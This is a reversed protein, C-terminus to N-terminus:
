PKSGAGPPWYAAIKALMWRGANRAAEAKAIVSSLTSAVLRGLNALRRGMNFGRWLSFTNEVPRSHFRSWVMKHLKPPATPVAVLRFELGSNALALAEITALIRQKDAPALPHSVAASDLDIHKSQWNVGVKDLVDRELISAAAEYNAIMALANKNGVQELQEKNASLSKSRSVPLEHEAMYAYVPLVGLNVCKVKDHTATIAGLACNELDELSEDTISIQSQNRLKMGDVRNVLESDRNLRHPYAGSQHM